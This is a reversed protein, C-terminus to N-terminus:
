AEAVELMARAAHLDSLDAGEHFRDCIPQLLNWANPARGSRLWLGALGMAARLEWLLAGQERAVQIAAEFSAEGLDSRNCAVLAEGKLRLTEAELWRDGNLAVLALAEDLVAIAQGSRGARTLAEALANMGLPRLSESGIIRYAEAGAELMAIGAGLEGMESTVWGKATRSVAHCYAYGHEDCLQVLLDIQQRAGDADRCLQSFWVSFCGACAAAVTRSALPAMGLLEAEQQRAQDLRGRAALVWVLYGRVLVRFESFFSDSRVVPDAVVEQLAVAAQLSESAAELKGLHALVIGRCGHSVHAIGKVGSGSAQEPFDGIIALAARLRGGLLHYTFEGFIMSTMRRPDGVGRCLERAQAYAEGVLPDGYGRAIGLVRALSAQLRFAYASRARRNAVRDLLSLGARLQAISEGLASRSFALSGAKLRYAVAKEFLEGETCHRALTQPEREAALPELTEIAGVVRAHLDRRLHRLLSGYAADQVVAHKFAYAASEGGEHRLMLGSHTVEAIAAQMAPEGLMAVAALLAASAERGIVAAVQAANRAAPSLHDLRATLSGHLTFPVKDPTDRAARAELLATTLEEVFLPNGGAREVIGGAIGCEPTDADAIWRVITAAELPALGELDLCTVHSHWAWAPNFEPRCTVIMLIRHASVQSGLLSLVELSAEDSWHADEFVLLLPAQRAPGQVFALIAEATRQRRRQPALDPAPYRGAIPISLLDALLSVGVGSLMAPALVTELNRLRYEPGAAGLLGVARELHAVFPHLISGTHHPLSDFRLEAHPAARMRDQERLAAVLRSKGIGPEGRLLVLQGEGHRAQEWRRQLIEIQDARGVFPTLRAARLAEFRSTTPNAGTVQWAHQPRAFGKLVLPGIPRYTFLDGVLQRTREAVVVTDPLALAQLRAALIKAEGVVIREDTLGVEIPMGAVILGAAIGVRLPLRRAPATVHKVPDILALGARVAREADNEHAEPYGFYAMVGDGLYQAVHGGFRAIIDAVSRQYESFMQLVDEEDMGTSFATSGVLDCFLVTIQRRDTPLESVRQRTM